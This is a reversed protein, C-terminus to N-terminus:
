KATSSSDAMLAIAREIYAAAHTSFSDGCSSDFSQLALLLSDNGRQIMELVHVHDRHHREAISVVLALNAEVLRKGASEAQQDGAWVHRICDIEEGRTMPAIKRLEGVNISLLDDVM